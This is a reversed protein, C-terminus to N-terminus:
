LGKHKKHAVFVALVFGGEDSSEEGQTDQRYGNDVEIVQQIHIKVMFDLWLNCRSHRNLARESFQFDSLVEENKFHEDVSFRETL